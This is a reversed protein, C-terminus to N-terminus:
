IVENNKLVKLIEKLQNRGRFLYNKVTGIPMGTIEAVEEYTMEELHFLTIVNRQAEPLKRLANELTTKLDDLEMVDDAGRETAGRSHVEDISVQPRKKKKAHNLSMHYAISVLWTSFKSVGRFTALKDYAKLFVDQCVEEMEDENQIIRGVVRSVLHQNRTILWRFAQMDGKLTREILLQDDKM